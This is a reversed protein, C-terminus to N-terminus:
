KRTVSDSCFQSATSPLWVSVSFFYKKM